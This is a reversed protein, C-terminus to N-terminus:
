GAVSAFVPAQLEDPQRRHPLADALELVEVLARANREADIGTDPRHASWRLSAGTAAVLRVLTDVRPIREGREYLCIAAASTGAIEALTRQSMGAVTRCHHLLTAADM